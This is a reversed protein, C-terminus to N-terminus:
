ACGVVVGSSPASSDVVHSVAPEVSWCDFAAPALGDAFEGVLLAPDDAELPRGVDVAGEDAVAPLGCGAARSCCFGVGADLGDVAAAGFGVWGAGETAARGSGVL